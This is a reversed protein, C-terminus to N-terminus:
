SDNFRLKKKLWDLETDRQGILRYLNDILEEKEREEKSRKDSFLQPLYEEAIKKWRKIQNPHISYVAALKSIKDEGRLAALAIQAKKQPSFIRRNTM